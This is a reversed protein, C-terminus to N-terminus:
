TPQGRGPGDDSVYDHRYTVDDPDTSEHPAASCQIYWFMLREGVLLTFEYPFQNFHPAIQYILIYYLTTNRNVCKFDESRNDFRQLCENDVLWLLPQDFRYSSDIVLIDFWLALNTAQLFLLAHRVFGNNNFRAHRFIVCFMTQVSIYVIRLLSFCVDNLYPSFTRWSCLKFVNFCSFAALLYFIGFVASFIFFITLGASILVADIRYHENDVMGRRVWLGREWACFGIMVALGFIMYVMQIIQSPQITKEHSPKMLYSESLQVTFSVTIMVVFLKMSSLTSSGVFTGGIRRATRLM